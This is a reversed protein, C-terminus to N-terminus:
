CGNRDYTNLLTRSSSVYSLFPQLERGASRRYRRFLWGVFGVAASFSGGALYAWGHAIM